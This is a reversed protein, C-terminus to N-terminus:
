WVAITERLCLWLRLVTTTTSRKAGNEHRYVVIATPSKCFFDDTFNLRNTWQSPHHPLPLPHTNPSAQGVFHTHTHTVHRTTHTHSTQTHTTQRSVRPETQAFHACHYCRRRM